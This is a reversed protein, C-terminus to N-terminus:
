KYDGLQLGKAVRLCARDEVELAEDEKSVLHEPNPPFGLLSPQLCCAAVVPAAAKAAMCTPPQRGM